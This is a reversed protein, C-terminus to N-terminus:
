TNVSLVLSSWVSLILVGFGLDEDLASNTNPPSVISGAGDPKNLSALPFVSVISLPRRVPPVAADPSFMRSQATKASSGSPHCPLGARLAYQRPQNCPSRYPGSALDPASRFGRRTEMTASAFM